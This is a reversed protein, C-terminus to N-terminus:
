NKKVGWFVPVPPPHALTEINSRVASVAYWEGLPIHTVV